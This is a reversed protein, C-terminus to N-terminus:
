RDESNDMEDVGGRGRWGLSGLDKPTVKSLYRTYACTAEDSSVSEVLKELFPISCHVM